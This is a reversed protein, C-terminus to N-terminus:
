GGSGGPGVAVLQCLRGCIGMGVQPSSNHLVRNTCLPVIEVAVTTVSCIGCFVMVVGYEYVM